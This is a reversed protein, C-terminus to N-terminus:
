QSAHISSEHDLGRFEKVLWGELSTLDNEVSFPRTFHDANEYKGTQCATLILSLALLLQKMNLGSM